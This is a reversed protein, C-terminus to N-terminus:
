AELKVDNLKKTIIDTKYIVLFVETKLTGTLKERLNGLNKTVHPLYYVRRGLSRHVIVLRTMVPLMRPRYFCANKEQSYWVAKPIMTGWAPILGKGRPNSAHLRLLQIVLSIGLFM